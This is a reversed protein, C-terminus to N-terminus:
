CQGYTKSEEEKEGLDVFNIGAFACVITSIILAWGSPMFQTLISNCVATAGVLIALGLNHTLSPTLISIFMAYLAIGLSATVIAPLFDSAVAGLLTGVNWSGYTITALGLFFMVSGKEPKWATFIAFSEDTVGFAALLKMGRGANSINKIVCTSMILHRLNLIFTALVIALIEAGYAYMGVALMQSAGAFVAVSMGCTQVLSLGAQRAMIAYAMGVPIYGFVVPAGAKLGQVFQAKKTNEM